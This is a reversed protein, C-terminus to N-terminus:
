MLVAEKAKKKLIEIENVDPNVHMKRHCNPCLAVVNELIDPGGDALWVVHHVELYPHYKKDLFPIAGCLQCRGKARIKATEAIAPDRKYDVSLTTYQQPSISGAKKIRELLQDASLAKVSNTEEENIAELIRGRYVEEAIIKDRDTREVDVQGLYELLEKNPHVPSQIRSLGSLKEIIEISIEKLDYSCVRRMRFWLGTYSKMSVQYASDDITKEPLNTQLIIMKYLISQIPKGVYYYVTDGESFHYNHQEREIIDHDSLADVLRYRMPNSAIIWVNNIQMIRKRRSVYRGM